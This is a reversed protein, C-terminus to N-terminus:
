ANKKRRRNDLRFGVSPEYRGDFDITWEVNWIDSYILSGFLVVKAKNETVYRAEQETLDIEIQIPPKPPREEGAGVVANPLLPVSQGDRSIGASIYRFRASGSEIIAPTKGFNKLTVYVKPFRNEPKEGPVMKLEAAFTDGKLLMYVFAGEVTPIHDAAIKAARAAVGTVIWLGITSGALAVTFLAIIANANQNAFDGWCRERM